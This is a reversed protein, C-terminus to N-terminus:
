KKRYKQEMRQMFEIQRITTAFSPAREPALHKAKNMDAIAKDYKKTKAFAVGRLSYPLYAQWDYASMLSTARTFDAVADDNKNLGSLVLGREIYAEAFSADAEIADNLLALAGGRNGMLRATKGRRYLAVSADSDPKANFVRRDLFRSVDAPPRFKPYLLTVAVYEALAEQITHAAYLSPLGQRYALDHRKAKFGASWDKFGHDLLKAKLRDIRPEVLSRFEVSRVLKHEADAVHTLEHVLTYLSSQVGLYNKVKSGFVDNFWMAGNGGFSSGKFHDIRYFPIPGQSAGLRLLGPARSLIMRLSPLLEAKEGASWPKVSIKKQRYYVEAVTGPKVSDRFEVYREWEAAQGATPGAASVCAFAIVIALLRAVSRDAAALGRLNREISGGGPGRRLESM